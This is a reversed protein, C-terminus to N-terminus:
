IGVELNAFYPNKLEKYTMYRNPSFFKKPKKLEILLLFKHWTISIQCTCAM